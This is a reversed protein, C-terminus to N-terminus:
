QELCADHCYFPWLLSKHYSIIQFLLMKIVESLIVRIIYLLIAAFGKKNARHM